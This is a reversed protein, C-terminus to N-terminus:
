DQRKNWERMSITKRNVRYWERAEQPVNEIAAPLMRDARPGRKIGIDESFWPGFEFMLKTKDLEFIIAATFSLEHVAEDGELMEQTDEVVKIDQITRAIKETSLAHGVLRSCVNEKQSSRVSVVAVDDVDGFYDCAEVECHIEYVDGEVVLWASMYTAHKAIYKDHALEDLTKGIMSALLSKENKALRIDTITM